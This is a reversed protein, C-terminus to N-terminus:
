TSAASPQQQGGGGGGRTSSAAGGRGGRMGKPVVYSVRAHKKERRKHPHPALRTPATDTPDVAVGAGHGGRQPTHQQGGGGGVEGRQQQQQVERGAPPADRGKRLSLLHGYCGLCITKVSTAAGEPPAADEGLQAEEDEATQAAAARQEAAGDGAPQAPEDEDTGIHWKYLIRSERPEDCRWCEFRQKSDFREAVLEASACHDFETRRRRVHKGENTKKKLRNQHEHPTKKRAERARMKEHFRERPTPGEQEVEQVVPSLAQEEETKMGEM